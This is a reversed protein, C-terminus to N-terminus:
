LDACRFKTAQTEVTISFGLVGSTNRCAPYVQYGLTEKTRLFDFCLEEMHMQLTTGAADPGLQHDSCSGEECSGNNPINIVIARVWQELTDLTEKSQVALTMSHASYYRTWIDRLRQYTNIWNERPMHKLTQANGWCFKTRPHGPKALSGFMMEKRCSDSPSALQYESDVAEVERDVADEVMLPCIFFQAWRDLAQRFFRRPLDFQFITRECDTSTNDIRGRAKLFADFGNEASYKESGM